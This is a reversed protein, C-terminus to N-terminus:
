ARAMTWLPWHNLAVCLAVTLPHLNYSNRM